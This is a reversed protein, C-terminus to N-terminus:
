VQNTSVSPQHEYMTHICFCELNVRSGLEKQHEACGVDGNNEDNGMRGMMGLIGLISMM